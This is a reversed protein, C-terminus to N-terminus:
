EVLETLRRVVLYRNWNPTSSDGAYDIPEGSINIVKFEAIILGHSNKYSRNFVITVPESAIASPTEHAPPSIKPPSKLELTLKPSAPTAFWAVVVGLCFTILAVGLRVIYKM